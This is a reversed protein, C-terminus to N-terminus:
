QVVTGLPPALLRFSWRPGPLVTVYFVRRQRVTRVVQGARPTGRVRVGMELVGQKVRGQWLRVLGVQVASSTIEPASEAYAERAGVPRVVREAPRRAGTLFASTLLTFWDDACVGPL